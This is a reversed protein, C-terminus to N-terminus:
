EGFPERYYRNPKLYLVENVYDFVLNFRRLADDALVGDAGEQRSRVEADPFETPVKVLEYPGIELRAVLGSRAYIDGSLGTGIYREESLEPLSFKMDPRVLLELAEESALDIYVKLSVPDEGSVSVSVDLFPIDNRLEIPIPTWTTDPVFSDPDHLRLVQRDYDIEVTHFGFLTKGIVGGRPLMQTTPSFSVLTMRGPFAVDGVWVTTSDYLLAFSDEGSGAGGVRATDNEAIQLQQAFDKHFVYVGDIPMGTDLIIRLTDSDEVRAPLVIRKRTLEFPIEPVPDSANAVMAAIM